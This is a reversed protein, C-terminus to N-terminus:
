WQGTSCQSCGTLSTGSVVATGFYGANCTCSGALGTYGTQDCSVPPPTPPAVGQQGSVILDNSTFPGSVVLAFPQGLITSGELKPSSVSTGVVKITYTGAVTLVVNEVPNLYDRNPASYKGNVIQENGSSDTVILDLNNVLAPNATLSAAKDSWALTINVSNRVSVAAGVNIQWSKSDGTKLYKMDNFNGIVALNRAFVGVYTSSVDKIYLNNIVKVRGWGFYNNVKGRSPLSYIRQGDANPVVGAMQYAGNIIVAKLLAGMPIFGDAATRTGSPFFGDVFYQRVLATTGATAPTAM